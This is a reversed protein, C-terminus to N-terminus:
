PAPLRRAQDPDILRGGADVEMGREPAGPDGGVARALLAQGRALVVGRGVRHRDSWASGRHTNRRTPRGEAAILDHGRRAGRRHAPPVEAEQKEPSRPGPAPPVARWPPGVLDMSPKIAQWSETKLGWRLLAHLARYLPLAM